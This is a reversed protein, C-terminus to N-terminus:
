SVVRAPLTMRSASARLSEASTQLCWPLCCTRIVRFASAAPLVRSVPRSSAPFSPPLRETRSSGSSRTTRWDDQLYMFVDHQIGGQILRSQAQVTNLLGALNDALSVRTFTSNFTLSGTYDSRNLYQLRLFNFGAAFNHRGHTWSLQEQLEFNENITDLYGQGASGLHYGGAISPLTPIGPVPFNGGYTAWTSNDTPTHGNEYRKYGVHIVNLLNPTIVWTDGISGLQSTAYQIDPDFTAIDSGATATRKTHIFSYRADISHRPLHYDVRVLSNEDFTPSPATSEAELSGDPAILNPLPVYKDTIANTVPNFCVSPIEDTPLFQSGGYFVQANNLANLCPPTGTGGAQQWASTVMNITDQPTASTGSSSQPEIPNYFKTGQDTFNACSPMGAFPGTSVCPLLTKGDPEFGRDAWTPPTDETEVTELRGILQQFAGFIFFKDRIIPAGITAGFLNYNDEPNVHTIYDSANFMQNQLEEWVEGHITNTGSKTIVNFISGASRGYEAKYNNLIVSVEQLAEHPPYNIGTNYFLNNYMLGDFLMLNQNTRGGNASFTSGGTDSTTFTPAYVDTVGPLLAALAVVNNGDLPVNEILKNDILTGITGSNTDLVTSPAEIDLTETSSGAVMHIVEKFEQGADVRIDRLVYKEFTNATVTISYTGIPLSDFTFDGAGNSIVSRNTAHEAATITVHANRVVAGTADTVTGFVRGTNQAQAVQPLLLGIGALLLVAFATQKVFVVTGASVNGCIDAFVDICNM